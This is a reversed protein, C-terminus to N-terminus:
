GLYAYICLVVLFKTSRSVEDNQLKMKFHEFYVYQLRKEDDLNKYDQQADIGFSSVKGKADFLIATPVRYFTDNLVLRQVEVSGDIIYAVSCSTTGFDIAAINKSPIRFGVTQRHVREAVQCGNSAMRVSGIRGVSMRSANNLLANLQQMGIEALTKICASGIGIVYVGRTGAGM